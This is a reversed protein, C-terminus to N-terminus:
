PNAVAKGVECLSHRAGGTSVQRMPVDRWPM